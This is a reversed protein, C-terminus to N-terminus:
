AFLVDAVDVVLPFHDSLGPWPESSLVSLSAAEALPRSAFCYDIHFRGTETANHRYTAVTEEGHPEGTLEHYVSALGLADARAIFKGHSHRQSTVRTSSNFDGAMLSPGDSLWDGFRDLGAMLVQHYSHDGARQVPWMALLHFGTDGQVDFGGMLTPADANAPHAILEVGDRTVIALGPAAAGIWRANLPNGGAPPATESIVLVDAHLHALLGVTEELSRRKNNYNANWAVLRM